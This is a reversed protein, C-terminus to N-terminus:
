AKRTKQMCALKCIFMILLAGALVGCFDIGVDIVQASRGAVLIQHIEDTIACGTCILLSLILRKNNKLRLQLMMLMCTFGLIFYIFLHALKRIFYQYRLIIIAQQEAPMDNYGPIFVRALGSIVSGSLSLSDLANQSSFIFISIYIFIFAICLLIFIFRKQALIHGTIKKEM